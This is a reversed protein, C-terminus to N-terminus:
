LVKAVAFTLGLALGVVLMFVLALLWWPAGSMKRNAAAGWAMPGGMMPGGPGRMM